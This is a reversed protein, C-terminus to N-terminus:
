RRLGASRTSSVLEDQLIHSALTTSSHAFGRSGAIETYFVVRAPKLISQAYALETHHKTTPLQPHITQSRSAAHIRSAQLLPFKQRPLASM